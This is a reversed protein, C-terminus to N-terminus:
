VAILLGNEDICLNFLLFKAICGQYHCWMAAFTQQQNFQSTLHDEKIQRIEKDAEKVHIVFHRLSHWFPKWWSTLYFTSYLFCMPFKSPNKANQYLSLNPGEFQRTLWPTTWILIDHSFLITRDTLHGSLLHSYYMSYNKQGKDTHQHELICSRSGLTSSDTFLKGAYFLPTLRDLISVNISVKSNFTDYSADSGSRIVILHSGFALLHGLLHFPTFTPDSKDLNRETFVGWM